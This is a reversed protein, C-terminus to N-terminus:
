DSVTHAEILYSAHERLSRDIKALTEEDLSNKVIQLSKLWNECRLGAEISRWATLKTEETLPCNDIFDTILRAYHKAYVTDATLAYAKALTVLFSHRNFVYTSEPDATPRHRWDIGDKFIVPEPQKEMEWHDRFYFINGCIGDARKIHEGSTEPFLRKCLGATEAVDGSWASFLGSV